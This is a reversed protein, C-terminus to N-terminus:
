QNEEYLKSWSLFSHFSMIVAAVFGREKDAFAAKVFFNYLFKFFPLLIIKLTSSKKGEVRSEKAHLTSYFNIKHIFGFLDDHPFHLLPNKLEGVSGKVKWTEHVRRGWKGKSKKALRLLKTSGSEGGVLKKGLFYDQRTLYFGSKDTNKITNIIEQKLKKTVAEDSDIFLVWSKTAKSLAFNRQAAFNHNLKKQYVKAIFSKAIKVTNDTSYDDIVIIEDCWSASKLASALKKQQNKTIICASIDNM